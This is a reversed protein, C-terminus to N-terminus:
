TAASVAVLLGTWFDLAVTAAAPLAKPRRAAEIRAGLRGGPCPGAAAGQMRCLRHRRLPPLNEFAAHVRRQESASLCADRHQCVYMSRCTRSYWGQSRCGARGGFVAATTAVPPWAALSEDGPCACASMLCWRVRSAIPCGFACIDRACEDTSASASALHLSRTVLM